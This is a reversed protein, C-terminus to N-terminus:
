LQRMVLKTGRYPWVGVGFQGKSNFLVTYFYWKGEKPCAFHQRYRGLYDNRDLVAMDWSAEFEHVHDCIPCRIKIDSGVQSITIAIPIDRNGFLKM